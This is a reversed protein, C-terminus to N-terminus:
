FNKSKSFTKKGGQIFHSTYLYTVISSGEKGWHSAMKADISPAQNRM